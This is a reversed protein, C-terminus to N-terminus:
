NEARKLNSKFVPTITKLLGNTEEDKLSINSSLVLTLSSIVALIVGDVCNVVRTANVDPQNSVAVEYTRNEDHTSAEDNNSAVDLM